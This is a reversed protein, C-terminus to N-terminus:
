QRIEEIKEAVIIRTPIEGDCHDYGRLKKGLMQKARKIAVEKDDETGAWYNPYDEQNTEAVIILYKM